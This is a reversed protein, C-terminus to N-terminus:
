LKYLATYKREIYDLFYKPNPEAGTADRVIEAAEKFGGHRHVRDRLWTLLPAFNGERFGAELGPIDRSAVAYLQAAYVNGLAYTPFYGFAGGSWHVDQLVGDAHNPPTVGFYERMKANWAEPVDKTKLRGEILEREIAFRLCIHLNYTVEDAETRICSAEVANLAAYLQEHDPDLGLTHYEKALFQAFPRSRAVMNEWLRSQSEHIGLSPADGVPTGYFEAPIGQEYLGHGVEHVTSMLAYLVDDERYRTTIRVDGPHFRDTFPHASEDLRGAHFDFGLKTAIRTNFEKQRPLDIKTTQQWSIPHTSSAQIRRLLDSLSPVITDLMDAATRATLGLEYEDLLADYPSETFGILHAEERKTEVIRELIPAFADWNSRARADAWTHHANAYLTASQEVFSAPLRSNREYRRLAKRVIASQTADLANDQALTVLQEGYAAATTKEHALGALYGVVEARAASGAAPMCAQEDWGLANNASVIHGSEKMVKRVNDYVTLLTKTQM